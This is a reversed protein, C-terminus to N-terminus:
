HFFVADANDMGWLLLVLM